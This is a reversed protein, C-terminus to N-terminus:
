FPSWSAENGVLVSLHLSPVHQGLVPGAGPGRRWGGESQLLNRAPRAGSLGSVAWRELLGPARSRSKRSSPAARSSGRKGGCCQPLPAPRVGPFALHRGQPWLAGGGGGRGRVAGSDGMRNNGIRHLLRTGGQSPPAPHGTGRPLPRRPRSHPQRPQREQHSSPPSGRERPLASPGTVGRSDLRGTPLVM